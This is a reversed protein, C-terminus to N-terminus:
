VVTLDAPVEADIKALFKKFEIARQRRHLSSIVAETAGQTHDGSSARYGDPSVCLAEALRQSGSEALVLHAHHLLRDVTATALTKPTITDFGSPAPQQHPHDLTTRLRRRHRPLPTRTERTVAEEPLVGARLFAKM